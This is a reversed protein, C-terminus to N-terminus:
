GTVGIITVYYKATASATIGAVGDIQIEGGTGISWDLTVASSLAAPVGSFTRIKGIWVAAPKSNRPWSVKIPYVGDLLVEKVVGDFNDQFTLGNNLAKVVLDILGNYIASFRQVFKEEPFDEQLLRKPPLIRM